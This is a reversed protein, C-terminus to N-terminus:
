EALRRGSPTTALGGKATCRLEVPLAQGVALVADVTEDLPIPNAYGGLVLDACTFASSAAVANRTHCPIECGGGVPDCVLGMHSHLAIAAADSAQRATGGAAEVVAAAAMACAAGVEVQCGAMEAAFTARWAVVLGVASAAFLAMACQERTLGLEEELTAVVGPVVGASGGTPAACIVGMSNSVHMVALARAAARAHPGGLPLAGSAEADRLGSACPQLYRMGLDGGEMGQRISAKMVEYRRLMEDIAAAESLGLVSCEYDLAARGLCSSEREAASVIEHGSSYLAEGRRVHFVPAATRVRRVGPLSRLRVLADGDVPEPGRLRVLHGDPGTIAPAALAEAVDAAVGDDCEVLTEHAKGTLALEWQDVRTFEIAGGGTSKAVACLREGSTSALDIMVSNPHDAEAFPEIIFVVDLGRQQALGLADVFREDTMELGVVGAACALDVGLAQYTPAYSGDPAFTFIASSPAEGLLDRAITAIRHAGATHSSSPGRMVPGMVDNFVSVFAM